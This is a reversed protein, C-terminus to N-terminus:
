DNPFSFSTISNHFLCDFGHLCDRLREQYEQAPLRAAADDQEGAGDECEDHRIRWQGLRILMQQMVRNGDPCPLVHELHPQQVPDIVAEHRHEEEDDAELDLALKEVPLQARIRRHQQGDARREAAHEHRGGEIRRDICAQRCEAAPADRHRRVDGKREADHGDRRALCREAEDDEQRREGDDIIEAGDDDDRQEVVRVEGYRGQQQPEHGHSGSEQEATEAHAEQRGVHREAEDGPQGEQFGADVRCDCAHQEAKRDRCCSSGLRREQVLELM